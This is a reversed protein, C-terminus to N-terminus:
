SCPFVWSTSHGGGGDMWLLAPMKCVSFQGGTREGRGQCGGKGKQRQSDWWGLYRACYKDKQSRVTESLVTNGPNVWTTVHSFKWALIGDCTHIVPNGLHSLPLLNRRCLCSNYSVWNQDRPSSSGRSSSIAVWELVRAQLIEHVSSGPPSRDMSDCLQVIVLCVCM